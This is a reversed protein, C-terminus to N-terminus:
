QDCRGARDEERVDRNRGWRYGFYSEYLLTVPHVVELSEGMRRSVSEIQMACGINGTVCTRVGTSLIHEVKRRGLRESMAPELLNYAGGAGCCIESEPLPVVKLGPIRGLIQRPPDKIGQAHLLHCADHYTVTRNLEYRPRLDSSALLESIDRVKSSFAQARDAYREDGSLCDMYERLMAGCGAISTVIYDVHETCLKGCPYTQPLFVDINTKAMRSAHEREGNHHHIAGCCVQNRPVVVEYGAERLLSIAQGNVDQYLVSGICGCFYGAKGIPVADDRKSGYRGSIRRPWLEGSVPLMQEMKQFEVPLVATVRRHALLHWLGTKQLIRIPLLALKLRLPYAFLRLSIQRVMRRVFGDKRSARLRDQVSEILEHYVVGSPCATECGRCQICLDLHNLVSPTPSIRGDALSKMLVIRGRPSDSELGSEMYTPCSPLCLGCSVCDLSRSYAGRELILSPRSGSEPLGGGTGSIERPGVRSSTNTVSVTM